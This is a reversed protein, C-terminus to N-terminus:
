SKSRTIVDLHVIGIGNIGITKAAQKSLDIIRGRVHPGFDNIRVVVSKKNKVNTVKVMSNPPISKHAATLSNQNYIEGTSTKHGHFKPGYWSAMGDIGSNVAKTRKTTSKKTKNNTALKKATKNYVSHINQNKHITNKANGELPIILFLTILIKIFANRM